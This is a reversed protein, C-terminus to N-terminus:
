KEVMVWAGDWSKPPVNVFQTCRQIFMKVLKDDQYNKGLDRFVSLAELWNGKEYKGFADKFLKNYELSVTDRELLEYVYVSRTKGKVKVKDLLRFNFFDKVLNYTFEGVMLHTDYVKNLTELRAALNVRDGLATYSLRDESGVNGVIVEGTSIGIRTVLEPKGELRWKANLKKLADQIDLAAQCCHLAHETDDIPAGWFAMIGDGIYKDVTGHNNIIVKTAVEFYESLYRMLDGPPMTESLPTFNEIDSFLVTLEKTEGGVEAIKGSLMLNKVLTFPMYRQFSGLVNKMKMFADAMLGIEKIRSIIEKIEDLKLQCILEADEALKVIPQSIRSSFITALFIGIIIIIVVFLIAILLGKTLPATVDTLPTVIVAMWQNEGEVSPIATYVSIYEKNNFKYLFLPQKNKKYVVFSEEAWPIKLDKFTPMKYGEKVLDIKRTTYASAVHGENDCIFIVSNSTIAISRVVKDIETLPLDMGLVGRLDGTRSYIPVVSTIGLEPAANAGIQLLPSLLWTSEKKFKALQYWSRIRPDFEDNQPEKSQLLNFSDDYIAETKKGINDTRTLTEALFHKNDLQKLLYFNGQTDGFYAAYINAESIVIDFLFNTFKATPSPTVHGYELMNAAFYSTLGLPRFYSGIEQSVKGSAYTLSSKASEILIRNITVYTIGIIVSSVGILLALLISLISFRISIKM